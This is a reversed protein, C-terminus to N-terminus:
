YPVLDWHYFWGLPVNVTFTLLEQQIRSKSFTSNLEKMMEIKEMDQEALNDPLPDIDIEFSKWRKLCEKEYERYLEMKKKVDKEVDLDKKLKSFDNSMDRLIQHKYTLARSNEFRKDTKMRIKLTPKKHSPRHYYHRRHRNHRIPDIGHDIFIGHYKLKIPKNQHLDSLYYRLLMIAVVILIILGILATINM